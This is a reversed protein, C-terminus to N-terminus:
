IVEAKVQDMFADALASGAFAVGILAAAGGVLWNWGSGRM